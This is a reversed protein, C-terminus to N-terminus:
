LLDLLKGSVRFGLNVERIDVNGYLLHKQAKSTEHVRWACYVAAGIVVLALLILLRRKNSGPPKQDSPVSQRPSVRIDRLGRVETRAAFDDPRDGNRSPPEVYPASVTM